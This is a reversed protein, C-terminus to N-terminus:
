KQNYALLTCLPLKLGCVPYCLLSLFSGQRQEVLALSEPVLSNGVMTDNGLSHEQSSTLMHEKMDLHSSVSVTDNSVNNSPHILLEENPHTIDDLLM